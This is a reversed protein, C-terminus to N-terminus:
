RALNWDRSHKIVAGLAVEVMTQGKLDFKDVVGQLAATMMEQNSCGKYVSHSRVFPIRSGGVIAVRIARGDHLM